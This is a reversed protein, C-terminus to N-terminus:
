SAATSARYHRVFVYMVCLGGLIYAAGVSWVWWEQGRLVLQWLTLSTTIAFFVLFIMSFGIVFAHDVERFQHKSELWHEWCTLDAIRPEVVERLYRGARAINNQESIYTLMLALLLFPIAANAFASPHEAAMYGAVLVLAMGAILIWFIHAKSERIEDRLTLYQNRLFEDTNMCVDGAIPDIFRGSYFLTIVGGSTSRGSMELAKARAPCM